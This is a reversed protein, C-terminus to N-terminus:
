CTPRAHRGPQDLVELGSIGPMKHDLLLIDPPQRDSAELAEEGSEAQDVSFASPAM